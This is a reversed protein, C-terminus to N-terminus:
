ALPVAPFQVTLKGELVSDWKKYLVFSVFFLVALIVDILGSLILTSGSPAIAYIAPISILLVAVLLSVIDSEPLYDTISSEFTQKDDGKLALEINEKLKALRISNHLPSMNKDLLKVPVLRNRSVKQLDKRSLYDIAICDALIEDLLLSTKIRQKYEGRWVITALAFAITIVLADKTWHLTLVLWFIYFLYPILGVILDIPKAAMRVITHGIEHLLFFKQVGDEENPINSIFLHSVFLQTNTYCTYLPTGRAIHVKLMQDFTVKWTENLRILWKEIDEFVEIHNEFLRSFLQQIKYTEGTFGKDLCGTIVRRTDRALMLMLKINIVLHGALSGLFIMVASNISPFMLFVSCQFVFIPNVRLIDLLMILFKKRDHQFARVINNFIM